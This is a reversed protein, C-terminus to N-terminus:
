WIIWIQLTARLYKPHILLLIRKKGAFQVTSSSTKIFTDKMCSCTSQSLLQCELGEQAGGTGLSSKACWFRWVPSGWKGFSVWLFSGQLPHLLHSSFMRLRAPGVPGGWIRATQDWQSHSPALPARPAAPPGASSPNIDAGVARRAARGTSHGEPWMCRESLGSTGTLLSLCSSPARGARSSGLIGSSLLSLTM